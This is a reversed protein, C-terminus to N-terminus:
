EPKKIINQQEITKAESIYKSIKIIFQKIRFTFCVLKNLPSMEFANNRKVHKQNCQM